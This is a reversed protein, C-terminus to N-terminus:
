PNGMMFQIFNEPTIQGLQEMMMPNIDHANPVAKDKGGKKSM